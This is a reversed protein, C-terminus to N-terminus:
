CPVDLNYGDNCFLVYDNPGNPCFIGDLGGHPRCITQAQQQAHVCDCSTAYVSNTTLTLVACTFGVLVVACVVWTRVRGAVVRTRM